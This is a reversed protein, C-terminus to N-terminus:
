YVDMLLLWSVCFEKCARDIYKIAWGHLSKSISLDEKSINKVILIYKENRKIFEASIANQNNATAGDHTISRIESAVPEGCIANSCSVLLFTFVIVFKRCKDIPNSAPYFKKLNKQENSIRM